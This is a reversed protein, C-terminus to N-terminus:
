SAPAPTAEGAGQTTATLPTDCIEHQLIATWMVADAAGVAAAGIVLATCPIALGGVTVVSGAACGAAIVGVIVTFGAAVAAAVIIECVSARNVQPTSPNETLGALLDTRDANVFQVAADAERESVHSAPVLLVIGSPIGSGSPQQITHVLEHILLDRGGSEEPRFEGSAFAIHQGVTVAHAGLSEAVLQASTGTHVKVGSFDQDFKEEMETRLKPSLDTGPGMNQSLWRGDVGVAFQSLLGLVKARRRSNTPLLDEPRRTAAATLTPDIGAERQPGGDHKHEVPSRTHARVQSFDHGFRPEMFARPAPDLPRGGSRLVDHVIPPVGPQAGMDGGTVRGQLLPKSQLLEREEEEDVQRRLDPEPTRMVQENARGAEQEYKDGPQSVTLKPQISAPADGFVRVNGFSYDM